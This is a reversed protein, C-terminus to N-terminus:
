YTVSIGTEERSKLITFILGRNISGLRIVITSGKIHERLLSIVAEDLLYGAVLVSKFIGSIEIYRTVLPTTFAILIYDPRVSLNGLGEIGEDRFRPRESSTGIPCRVPFLRGSPNLVDM